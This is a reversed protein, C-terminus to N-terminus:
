HLPKASYGCWLNEATSVPLIFGAVGLADALRTADLGMLKGAAVASGCTGTTGTPLYGRALHNPHVSWALRNTVEYGAVVAELLAKGSVGKWEAVALAAPIVVCPHNNGFRWGDQLEFIEALTGNVLAATPPSAKRGLGLVTSWRATDFRTGARYADLGLTTTAGALMTGVSDLICLKTKDAVDAPIREYALAACFEALQETCGQAKTGPQALHGM